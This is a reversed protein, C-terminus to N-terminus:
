SFGMKDLEKRKGLPVDLPSDSTTFSLIRKLLERALMFVNLSVTLFFTNNLM